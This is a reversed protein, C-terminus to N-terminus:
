DEKIRRRGEEDAIVFKPNDFLPFAATNMIQQLAASMEDPSNGAKVAIRYISHLRSELYDERITV